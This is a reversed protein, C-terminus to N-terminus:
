KFSWPKYTGVARYQRIENLLWRLLDLAPFNLRASIMENGAHPAALAKTKKSTKCAINGAQDCTRISRGLRKVPTSREVFRWANACRRSFAIM